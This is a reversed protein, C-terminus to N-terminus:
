NHLDEFTFRSVFKNHGSFMGTPLDLLDKQQPQKLFNIVADRSKGLKEDTLEELFALLSVSTPISLFRSLPVYLDHYLGVSLALLFMVMQSGEKTILFDLANGYTSFQFKIENENFTAPRTLDWFHQIEM